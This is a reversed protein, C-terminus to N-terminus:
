LRFQQGLCAGYQGQALIGKVAISGFFVGPHLVGDGYQRVPRESRDKRLARGQGASDHGGPVQDVVNGFGEGGGFQGAAAPVQARAM